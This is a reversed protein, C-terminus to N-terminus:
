YRVTGTFELTQLIKSVNFIITNKPYDHHHHSVMLPTNITYIIIGTSAALPPHDPTLWNYLADQGSRGGDEKKKRKKKKKKKKM